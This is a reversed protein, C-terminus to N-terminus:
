VPWVWRWNELGIKIPNERVYRITRVLDDEDRIIHDYSEKQWFEGDRNVVRNAEHASFSKWSHLIESLEHGFMPQVVVHVHNPM